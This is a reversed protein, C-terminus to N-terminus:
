HLPSHRPRYFLHRPTCRLHQRVGPCGAHLPSPPKSCSLSVRRLPSIAPEGPRRMTSVAVPTWDDLGSTHQLYMCLWLGGLVTVFAALLSILPSAYLLSSTTIIEMPPMGHQLFRPTKMQLSPRTFASSFRASTHKQFTRWRAKIPRWHRLRVSQPSCVPRLIRDVSYTIWFLM